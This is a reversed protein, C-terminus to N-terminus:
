IKRKLVPTLHEPIGVTQIASCGLKYAFEISKRALIGDYFGNPEASEKLIAFEITTCHGGPPRQGYSNVWELSQSQKPYLAIAKTSQKNLCPVTCYSPFVLM